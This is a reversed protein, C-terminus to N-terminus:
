TLKNYKKLKYMILKLYPLVIILKNYLDFILSFPNDYPEDNVLEM